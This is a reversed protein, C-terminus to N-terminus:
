RKIQTKVWEADERLSAVTRDTGGAAKLQSRGMLGLAATALLFVAAVILDAAWRPVVLALAAAAAGAVFAVAFVALVVAAVMFAVARARDAAMEKLESKVLNVEGRLLHRVHEVISQVIAAVSRPTESRSSMVM